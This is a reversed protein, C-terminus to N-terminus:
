IIQWCNWQPSHSKTQGRSNNNELKRGLKGCGRWRIWTVTTSIIEVRITTYLWLCTSAAYEWLPREINTAAAETNPTNKGMTMWESRTWESSYNNSKSFHCLEIRCHCILGQEQERTTTTTRKAPVNQLEWIQFKEFLVKSNNQARM